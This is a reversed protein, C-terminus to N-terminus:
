ITFKVKLNHLFWVNKTLNLCYDQVVFLFILSIHAAYKINQLWVCDSNHRGRRERHLWKLVSTNMFRPNKLFYITVGSVLLCYLVSVRLPFLHSLKPSLSQKLSLDLTKSPRPLSPPVPALPSPSGWVFAKVVSPILGRAKLFLAPNFQVARSFVCNLYKQFFYIYMYIYGQSKWIGSSACLLISSAFHCLLFLYHVRNESNKFMKGMLSTLFHAVIQMLFQDFM